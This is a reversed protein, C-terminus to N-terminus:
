IHPTSSGRSGSGPATSPPAVCLSPAISVCSAREGQNCLVAPSQLKSTQASILLDDDPGGYMEDSWGNGYLEDNGTGGRVDDEGGNALVFDDGGLTFIEDAEDTGTLTDNRNTGECPNSTCPKTVALATGGLMLVGLMMSALILLTRRTAMSGGRKLAVLMAKRM